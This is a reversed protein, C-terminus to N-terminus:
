ENSGEHSQEVKRLFERGSERLETTRQQIEDHDPERELDDNKEYFESADGDMASIHRELLSFDHLLSHTKSEQDKYRDSVDITVFPTGHKLSFITSHLSSTVVMDFHSYMSYYELPDVKGELEVDALRSHRTTVIQYGRDRYHECIDEFLPIDTTTHFGLIPEDLNIGEKQLLSSVDKTPIDILLTPDPVRHVDEIGLESLLEETYNDRVSILDYDSIHRNFIDIQDESLESIDISNASAAYSVKLSSLSPDLFYLNPFPRSPSLIPDRHSRESRIKWVEDSGTVLVDYDQEELWETAQRHDDTTLRPGNSVDSDIFDEVIRRDKIRRPINWPRKRKFINIVRSIEKSRTRYDIIDVQSESFTQSLAERLAYAQLIAGRNENNHYTLIGIKAM